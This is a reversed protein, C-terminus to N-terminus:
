PDVKVQKPDIASSDKQSRSNPQSSMSRPVRKAARPVWSGKFRSQMVEIDADCTAASKNRRLSVWFVVVHFNATLESHVIVAVGFCSFDSCVLILVACRLLQDDNFFIEECM